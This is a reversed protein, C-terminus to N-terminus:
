TPKLSFLSSMVGEGGGRGRKGRRGGGEEGEERENKGNGEEREGGGWISHRDTHNELFCKMASLFFSM